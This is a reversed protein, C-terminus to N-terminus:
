TFASTCLIFFVEQFWLRLPLQQLCSHTWVARVRGYVSVDGSVDCECKYFSNMLKGTRTRMLIKNEKRKTHTHKKGQLYCPSVHAPSFAEAPLPAQTLAGPKVYIFSIVSKGM